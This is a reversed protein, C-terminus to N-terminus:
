AQKACRIESKNTEKLGTLLITAKLKNKNGYSFHQNLFTRHTIQTNGHAHKNLAAVHKSM